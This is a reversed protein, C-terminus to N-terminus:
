SCPCRCAHSDTTFRYGCVRVRTPLCPKPRASYIFGTRSDPVRRMAYDADPGLNEYLLLFKTDRPTRWDAGSAMILLDLNGDNNFDFFLSNTFATRQILNDYDYSLGGNGDPRALIAMENWGEAGASLAAAVGAILLTLKKM